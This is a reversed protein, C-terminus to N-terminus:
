KEPEPPLEVGADKLVKNFILQPSRTILFGPGAKGDSYQRVQFCEFCIVLDITTEGSKFRIGHRPIFCNAAIGKNEKVGKAFATILVQRTDADKVNTKGLVKYGHFGDKEKEVRMSPDLSYLELETAKDLLSILYDAPDKEEAAATPFLFTLVLFTATM